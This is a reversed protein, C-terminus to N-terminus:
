GTCLVGETICITSVTVGGGMIIVAAGVTTGTTAGIAAAVAGVTAGITTEVVVAFVTAGIVVDVVAGVTAGITGVTLVNVGDVRGLKQLVLGVLLQVLPSKLV